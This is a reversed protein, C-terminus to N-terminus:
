LNPFTLIIIKYIDLTNKFLDILANSSTINLDLGPAAEIM